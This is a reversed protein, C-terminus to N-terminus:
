GEVRFGGAFWWFGGVGLGRFKVRCGLCGLGGFGLGRLGSAWVAEVRFGLCGLGGLGYVGLGQFGFLRFGM